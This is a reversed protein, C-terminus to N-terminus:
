GRSCSAAIFIPALRTQWFPFYTKRDQTIETQVDRVREGFITSIEDDTANTTQGDMGVSQRAPVVATM